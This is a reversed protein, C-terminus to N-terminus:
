AAARLPDLRKRLRWAAIHEEDLRAIVFGACLGLFIYVFPDGFIQHASVFVVVNAGILAILGLTIAPDSAGERRVSDLKGHLVRGARFLLLLAVLAGPVGLEAVVRAVGSESVVAWDELEARFHQGGQTGTGLGTGLFGALEVVRPISMVSGVVRGLAGGGVASREEMSGIQVAAKEAVGFYQFAWAGAIAISFSIAGLKGLRGRVWIQLVAFLLVFILIEGLGKRRGTVVVGWGLFAALGGLVVWRAASARRASALVVAVCAATACHWSAVEPARFFGPPLYIAGLQWDYVILGAGVSRLSPWRFGAQWLALGSAMLSTFIVYAGLFREVVGRRGGAWTGLVLAAVPGIYAAAGLGVLVVSGTRLFSVLGQVVLVLVFLSIPLRLSRWDRRRWWLPNDAMLASVVCAAFVVFVIGMLYAPQGPTLKRVLDQLLGAAAVIIIGKRFDAVCALAAAFVVFALAPSM